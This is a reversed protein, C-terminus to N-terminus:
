PAPAEGKGSASGNGSVENCVELVYTVETTDTNEYLWDATVDPATRQLVKAAVECTARHSGDYKAARVEDAVRNILPKVVFERGGVTITKSRPASM